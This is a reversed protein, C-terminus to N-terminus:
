AVDVRELPSAVAEVPQLCENFSQSVLHRRSACEQRLELMCGFGGQCICQRSQMEAHKLCFPANAQRLSQLQSKPAQTKCLVLNSCAQALMPWSLRRWGQRERVCRQLSVDTWSCGVHSRTDERGAFSEDDLLM